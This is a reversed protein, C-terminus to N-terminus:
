RFQWSGREEWEGAHPIVHESWFKRAELRLREHSEEYYRNNCAIDPWATNCVSPISESNTFEWAM